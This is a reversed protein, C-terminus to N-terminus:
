RVAIVTKRTVLRTSLVRPRYNMKARPQERWIGASTKEFVVTSAKAVYVKSGIPLRTLDDYGLVQRPAYQTDLWDRCERLSDCVTLQEETDQRYVYFQGNDVEVEYKGDRTRFDGHGISILHM